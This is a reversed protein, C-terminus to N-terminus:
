LVEEVREWIIQHVEALPATADVVFAGIKEAEVLFGKRVREFYAREGDREFYDQEDDSEKRALFTEYPIDLVFVADPKYNEGLAYHCILRTREDPENDGYVQFAISSMFSRDAVVHASALLQDIEMITAVRAANFLMVDTLAPREIDSLLISRIAESIPPGGPERTAAVPEGREQLQSIVRRIVTSKGSKNPGEFVMHRYNRELNM